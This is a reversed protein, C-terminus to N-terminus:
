RVLMARVRHSSRRTLGFAVRLMTSITSRWARRRGPLVAIIRDRGACSSHRAPRARWGSHGNPRPAPCRARCRRHRQQHFVAGIVDTGPQAQELDACLDREDIGIQRARRQGMGDGDGAGPVRDHAGLQRLIEQGRRELCRGSKPNLPSRTCAHRRFGSEAAARAAAGSVEGPLAARAPTVSFSRAKKM